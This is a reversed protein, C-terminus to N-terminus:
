ASIAFTLTSLSTGGGGAVTAKGAGLIVVDVGDVPRIKALHEGFHLCPELLM